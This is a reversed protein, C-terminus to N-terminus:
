PMLNSAYCGRSHLVRRVPSWCVAEHVVYGPWSVGAAERVALYNDTWNHHSVAGDCSIVKVWMRDRHLVTLGDRARFEMGQSGVVLQQGVVTSWEGKFGRTRNGPGSSLIVWPVVLWGELLSYVVGTKDDPAVLREGFRSLESLEMGRGGAALNNNLEVEEQEWSVEATEEQEGLVLRGERLFTVWQRGRRTQRDPDAVIALRFVGGEQVPSPSGPCEPETLSLNSPAGVVLLPSLSLLLLLLLLPESM